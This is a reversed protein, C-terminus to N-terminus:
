RKLSVSQLHTTCGGLSITWTAISSISSASRRSDLSRLCGRFGPNYGAAPMPLPNTIRDCPYICTVAIARAFAPKLNRLRPRSDQTDTKDRNCDRDDRNRQRITNRETTSKKHCELSPQAQSMVNREEQSRDAKREVCVPLDSWFPVPRSVAVIGSAHAM